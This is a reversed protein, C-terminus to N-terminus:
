QLWRRAEQQYPEPLRALEVSQSLQLARVYAVVAWRKRPALAHAYSPMLGYGLSIVEFIRADPLDRIRAELLAPPTRYAMNEAVATLGDGLIGHCPACFTEFHVRAVELEARSIREPAHPVPRGDPSRADAVPADSAHQAFRVAGEPAHQNCSGDRFLTTARMPSCREQSVMRQLSWDCSSTVLLLWALRLPARPRTM